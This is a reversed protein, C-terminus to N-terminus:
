KAALIRGLGTDREAVSGGPGPKEGEKGRLRYLRLAERHGKALNLGTFERVLELRSALATPLRKEEGPRLLFFAFGPHFDELVQLSEGAYFRLSPEQMPFALVPQSLKQCAQGAAKYPTAGALALTALGLFITAFAALRQERPGPHAAAVVLPLAPLLYHPLKTQVLCLLLLPVGVGALIVRRSFDQDGRNRLFRWFAPFLPFAALALSALYFPPGALVGWLGPLGHGELPKLARTLVHHGFGKELLEGGSQWNAPLLWSAVLVVALLPGWPPFLRRWLDKQSTALVVLPPLLFLLTVPGKALVGLACFVWAGVLNAKGPYRAARLFFFFSAATLAGVVADPTAFIGALGMGPLFAWSAEGKLERALSKTLWLWLACAVLSPFRFGLETEGFCATSALQLWYILIPKDPRLRGFNQPLLYQGTARMERVAQAYRPEDRDLLPAFAAAALLSAWAL